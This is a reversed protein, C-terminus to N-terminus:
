FSNPLISCKKKEKRRRASHSQCALKNMSRLFFTPTHMHQTRLSQKTLDKKKVQNVTTSVFLCVCWVNIALGSHYFVRFSYTKPQYREILKKVVNKHGFINWGKSRISHKMQKILIEDFSINYILWLESDM